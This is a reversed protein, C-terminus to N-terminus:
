PRNPVCPLYRLLVTGIRMLTMNQTWGAAPIGHGPFAEGSNTRQGSIPPSCAGPELGLRQGLRAQQEAEHEAHLEEREPRQRKLQHRREAVAQCLFEGEDCDAENAQVQMDPLKRRSQRDREREGRKVRREGKRRQKPAIKTLQEITVRAGRRRGWRQADSTGGDMDAPRCHDVRSEDRCGLLVLALAVLLGAIACSQQRTCVQPLAPGAADGPGQPGFVALVAVPSSAVMTQVTAATQGCNDQAEATVNNQNVIGNKLTSLGTEASAINTQWGLQIYQTLLEALVGATGQARCCGLFKCHPSM